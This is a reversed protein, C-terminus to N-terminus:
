IIFDMRYPQCHRGIRFNLPYAFVRLGNEITEPGFNVLIQLAHLPTGISQCTEKRNNIDHEM